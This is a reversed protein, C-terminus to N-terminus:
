RAAPRGRRSPPAHQRLFADADQFNDCAVARALVREPPIAEGDAAVVLAIEGPQVVVVPVKVIKYRWRWLGFHWGPPLLRAQYGAEGDIAIIRGSPLRPGFRKIVLGSENERIVRTGLVIVALALWAAGLALVTLWFMTMLTM